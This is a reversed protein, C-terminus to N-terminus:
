GYLRSLKWNKALAGSDGYHIKVTSSGTLSKDRAGLSGGTIRL